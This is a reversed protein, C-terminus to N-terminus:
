YQWVATINNVDVGAATQATSLVYSYGYTTGSSDASVLQYMFITNAQISALLGDQDNVEDFLDDWNSNDNFFTNGNGNTAIINQLTGIEALQSNSLSKTVKCNPGPKTCDVRGSGELIMAERTYGGKGKAAAKKIVPTVTSTSKGEKKSCGFIVIVMASLMIMSTIKKM